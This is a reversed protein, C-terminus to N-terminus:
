VTTSLLRRRGEYPPTKGKNARWTRSNLPYPPPKQSRTLANAESKPEKIQSATTGHNFKLGSNKISSLATQYAPPAVSPPSEGPTQDKSCAELRRAGRPVRSVVLGPNNPYGSNPISTHVYKAEESASVRESPSCHRSAERSDEEGLDISSTLQDIQQVVQTDSSSMMNSSQEFCGVWTQFLSLERFVNGTKHWVILAVHIFIVHLSM